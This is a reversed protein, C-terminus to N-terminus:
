DTIEDMGDPNCRPCPVVETGNKGTRVFGMDNCTDCQPSPKRGAKKANKAIARLKKKSRSKGGKAGNCAPCILKKKHIPCLTM